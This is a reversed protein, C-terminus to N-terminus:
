ARQQEQQLIAGSGQLIAESIERYFEGKTEWDGPGLRYSGDANSGEADSQDSLASAGREASLNSESVMHDGVTPFRPADSDQARALPGALLLLSLGAVGLSVLGVPRTRGNKKLLIM